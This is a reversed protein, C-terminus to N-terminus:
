RPILCDRCCAVDKIDEALGVTCEFEQMRSVACDWCESRHIVYVKKKLSAALVVVPDIPGDRAGCRVICARNRELPAGAEALKVLRDSIVQMRRRLVYAEQGAASRELEFIDANASTSLEDNSPPLVRELIEYSTLACHTMREWRERHECPSGCKVVPRYATEIIRGGVRVQIFAAVAGRPATSGKDLVSLLPFGDSKFNSLFICTHGQDGDGYDRLADFIQPEEEDHRQPLWGPFDPRFSPMCIASFKGPFLTRHSISVDERSHLLTIGDVGVLDYLWGGTVFLVHDVPSGEDRYEERDDAWPRGVVYGLGSDGPPVPLSVSTTMSLRTTTSDPRHDGITALAVLFRLLDADSIDAGVNIGMRRCVELVAPGARQEDLIPYLMFQSEIRSTLEGFWDEAEQLAPEWADVWATCGDPRSEAVFYYHQHFTQLSLSFSSYISTCEGCTCGSFDLSPLEEESPRQQECLLPLSLIDGVHQCSRLPDFLFERVERFVKLEVDMVNQEMDWKVPDSFILALGRQRRTWESFNTVWPQREFNEKWLLLSQAVVFPQMYLIVELPYKQHLRDAVHIASHIDREEPFSQASCFANFLLVRAFSNHAWGHVPYAACFRDHIWDELPGDFRVEYIPDAMGDNIEFAYSDDEEDSSWDMPLMEEDEDEPPDANWFATPDIEEASYVKKGLGFNSSAWRILLLTLKTQPIIVSGPLPRLLLSPNRRVDYEYRLEEPLEYGWLEARPLAKDEDAPNYDAGLFPNRDPPLPLKTKIMKRLSMMVPKVSDLQMLETALTVSLDNTVRFADGLTHSLLRGVEDESLRHGIIWLLLMMIRARTGTEGLLATTKFHENQGLKRFIGAVFTPKRLEHYWDVDALMGTPPKMNDLAPHLSLARYVLLQATKRKEKQAVRNEQISSVIERIEGVVAAIDISISAM